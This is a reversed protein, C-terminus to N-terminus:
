KKLAEYRHRRRWPWHKLGKKPIDLHPLCLEIAPPHKYGDRGTDGINLNFRHWDFRIQQKARQSQNYHQIDRPEFIIGVGGANPYSYFFSVHRCMRAVCEVIPFMVVFLQWSFLTLLYLRLSVDRERTTRINWLKRKKMNRLYSRRALYMSNSSVLYAGSIMIMKPFDGTWTVSQISEKIFPVSFATLQNSTM